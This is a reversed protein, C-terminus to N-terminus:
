WSETRGQHTFFLIREKVSEGTLQEWARAYLEVQRRYGQYRVPFDPDAGVDTKYDAIVWGDPERFVLDIVGELVAPIGGDDGAGVGGIENAGGRAGAMGSAGDLAFLDLQRRVGSGTEDHRTASGGKAGTQAPGDGRGSLHAADGGPPAAQFGEPTVGRLAFPVEAMRRRAKRAREWLESTRVAEVLDLLEELEVPEGHADLPRGNEVLFTRCRAALAGEDGAELAAALAQHVASGWSFGRFGQVTGGGPAAGEVAPAEGGGGAQAPAAEDRRGSETAKAIKTVTVFAHTPTRLAELRERSEQVRAEIEEVRPPAEETPAGEGGELELAVAHKELWEDLPGWSVARVEEQRRKRYAEASEKKNPVSVHRAVVLEEEARTCAVYLLRAEEAEEFAKEAAELESWDLPRALVARGREGEVLMFGEARGDERRRVHMTPPHEQPAVPHALVVVKAELGKAQHLNMVRVADGRGPELPAEAERSELAARLARVAGPLSADGGLVTERVADFALALVGVRTSGEELAGALPLLGVEAALHDVLVDAPLRAAQRWWRHLTELAERVGAHGKSGPALVDFRGRALHHATLAELDLGFFLGTLVTVVKVSDTPDCMCELLAVFDRLEEEMDLKAGTVDVRIGRTELERAYLHLRGRGRTLVLFDEPRREGSRVRREIWAAIRVAESEAAARHQRGKVEVGYCFVGERVPAEERALTNLPSFPAQQPTAEEPFLGGRGFVDNVIRGIDRRSRFNATLELVAGAEEFCDRVFKYLQIDARRFRYISQKPDGVIFLAGPRPRARRWDTSGEEEAPGEREAPGEGEMPDSALLFIIEAQRPDTDQFEDVLIRAYRKGLDRRASPHERLLRATLTLLDDFDLRATRRRYEAFERAAARAFRIAAGYRWARWRNLLRGGPSDPGGLIEIFSAGLEKARAKDRWNKQTIKYASDSGGAVDSLAELFDRDEKWGTVQLSHRLDRVHGQIKDWGSAPLEPSWIKEAEKLLDLVKRRVADIERRSPPKVGPAPFEVDPYGQMRQFAKRLQGPRLGVRDLDELLPDEDQVLRELYANWFEQALLDADRASLEQFGPDVGGELPRERLIRACFAHITGIFAGDLNRLAEDLRGRVEDPLVEGAALRRELESQFRERLEAAAKRTFTVAAIREVSSVAGRVVLEVMREVLSTTKGSGAGAEVLFNTDLEERIRRRAEHDPPLGAHITGDPDVRVPAGDPLRSIEDWPVEVVPITEEGLERAVVVGLALIADGEGLLIVRPASRSRLLELMVASSSSSGITRPIALVTGGIRRGFEPHRPNVIEGTAPDVDGWLSVPASLCLLPGAVPSGSGAALVRGRIAAGPAVDTGAGAGPSAGPDIDPHNGPGIGGVM